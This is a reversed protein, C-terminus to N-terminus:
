RKGRMVMEVVVIIGIGGLAVLIGYALVWLLLETGTM